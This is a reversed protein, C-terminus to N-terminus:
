QGSKPHWPAGPPVVWEGRQLYAVFELLGKDHAFGTDSFRKFKGKFTYQKGKELEVEPDGSWKPEDAEPIQFKYNVVLMARAKGKDDRDDTVWVHPQKPPACTRSHPCEPPEYVAQVWARVMVEEGRQGEAVREDIQERLGHISYAGDEYQEPAKATPFVPAAPLVAADSNARPAPEYPDIEHASPEPVDPAATPPAPPETARNCAFGLLLPVLLRRVM